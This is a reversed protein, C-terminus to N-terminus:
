RRDGKEAPDRRLSRSIAGAGRIQGESLTVTRPQSKKPEERYAKHAKYLDLRSQFEAKHALDAQQVAKTQWKVASPFDGAEAYAAALTDIVSPDDYSGAVRLAEKADEVAKKGDRFHADPCTAELWARNHWGLQSKPVLRITEDFDSIAKSYEGKRMLAVGRDFFASALHPDLRIAENFDGIAINYEGKLSWIIGLICYGRATPHRKLEENFFDVAQSFPIVDSRNIWGKITGYGAGPCIVWFRDGSVKRVVLINGKPILGTAADDTRLQANTITVIKDGVQQAIAAASLFGFLVVSLVVAQRM